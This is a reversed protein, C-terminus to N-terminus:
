CPAGLHRDCSHDDLRRSFSDRQNAHSRQQTTPRAHRLSCRRAGVHRPAPPRAPGCGSQWRSTAGARRREKVGPDHGPVQSDRFLDGCMRAPRHHEPADRANRGAGLDRANAAQHYTVTMKPVVRNMELRTAHTCPLSEADLWVRDRSCGPSGIRCALAYKRRAFELRPGM